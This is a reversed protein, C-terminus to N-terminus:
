TEYYRAGYRSYAGYRGGYGYRKMGAPDIQSLVLGTVPVNVTEFQRLAEAVQAHTTSDWRVNFVIADASQGIVRADPVVLVPPTDIIIYDYTERATELLAHFKESAFLDAANVKTKEGMLVDAGLRPEHVIVESLPKDEGLVAMLGGTPAHDLYQSFTRRRIDGELLLVKKGLGALNHALAIATSTKSENPVSSGVMIVRPPADVNSMLVSTRLNRIAEAAASTPKDNLYDILKGRAKIPMLPIQGIVTYGTRKELDEATRFHNHLAERLLILGAGVMLGLIGALGLIRARRPEVQRAGEAEELLRSDAQQLGRSVTTEKLRSLFTEYLARTAQLEREMQQLQILDGSQREVRAELSALADRLSALQSAARAREATARDVLEAAREAFAASEPGEREAIRELLPDDALSLLAEPGTERAEALAARRAEAEALAAEARDVRDRQDRVQATLAAVAEPTAAESEARLEKVADEQARLEVELERVRESLWDVAQDTAEFKQAIQDEIYIAALANVMEASIERSGTTASIEFIYTNRQQAVSIAQRAAGIAGRRIEEETPPPATEAPLGIADRARDIVAGVSWRPDERLTPNFEPTDTLNLEDVLEAILRRSRIVELETNLASTETSVGSVVQELDVVNPGQVELVLSSTARYKPEAVAFAYYGAVAVFLAMALAIWWKGRWLTGALALLDIEDDDPEAPQAAAQRMSPGISPQRTVPQVNM